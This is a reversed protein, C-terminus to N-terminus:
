AEKLEKEVIEYVTKGAVKTSIMAQKRNAEYFNYSVHIWKGFEFILQDYPLNKFITNFVKELSMGPITFDAAQGEIHQSNHSGGIAANAELSRYGSSIIVPLGILDRLPQLVEICLESLNFCEFEDPTNDYGLREASQSIIFEELTFDKSLVQYEALENEM